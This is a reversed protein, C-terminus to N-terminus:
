RLARAFQAGRMEVVMAFLVCFLLLRGIEQVKGGFTGQWPPLYMALALIFLLILISM